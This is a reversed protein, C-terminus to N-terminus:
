NVSNKTPILGVVRHWGSTRGMEFVQCCSERPKVDRKDVIPEEGHTLAGVVKSSNPVSGLLYCGVEGGELVDGDRGVKGTRIRSTDVRIFGQKHMREEGKCGLKERICEELVIRGM